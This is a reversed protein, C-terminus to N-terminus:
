LPEIQLRSQHVSGRQRQVSVTCRASVRDRSFSQATETESREAGLHLQRTFRVPLADEFVKLTLLSELGDELCLHLHQACQVKHHVYRSRHCKQSEETRTEVIFGVNDTYRSEEHPQREEVNCKCAWSESSMRPKEVPESKAMLSRLLQSNRM